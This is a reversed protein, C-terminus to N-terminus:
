TATESWIRGPDAAPRLGCPRQAPPTQRHPEGAHGAALHACSCDDAAAVVGARAPVTHCQQTHCHNATHKTVQMHSRSKEQVQLAQWCCLAAPDAAAHPSVAAPAPLLFLCGAQLTHLEPAASAAAAPDAALGAAASLHTRAAALRPTSTHPVNHMNVSGLCVGCGQATSHQSVAVRHTHGTKHLTRLM